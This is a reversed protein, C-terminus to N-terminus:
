RRPQSGESCKGLPAAHAPGTGSRSGYYPLRQGTVPFRFISKGLDIGDLVLTEGFPKRPGTMRIALTM